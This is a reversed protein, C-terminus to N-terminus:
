CVLFLIMGAITGLSDSQLVQYIDCDSRNITIINNQSGLGNDVKPQLCNVGCM